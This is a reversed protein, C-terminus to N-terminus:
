QGRKGILYVVGSVSMLLVITEGLTDFARYGLYVSTVLNRAGTDSVGDAVVADRTTNPAAAAEDGNERGRDTFALLLVAAVLLVAVIEVTRRM